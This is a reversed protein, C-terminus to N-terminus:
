KKNAVIEKLYSITDSISKAGIKEERGEITLTKEEVEKDGIVLLYPTREEKAARIKKGLSEKRDDLEVRLGAEKMEKLVEEAYPLHTDSIPLIMAQVPALWLPFHGGFHEIMVGMFRELSGSIARHIVVPREKEGKENTFSLEFREPLNFDCQITALQWERGIADKFMFDLKPGYFAAEDRGVVYNLDNAKAASELAAEAKEWVDDGGLYKSTDDGRVSLRVWYGDFMNMTTYFERIISVITSVEQEIQDVRCFLHGDDQTISRVRTLGALQGAKEYRYVTGPEFYRVPMDRYSFTNDAFIQMHHPCNMPKMFFEEDGGKVRFLEDGFKSAHGSTEYLDQKALHPTWVRQYGKSQHLDWLYNEIEQRITMGRPQMLPLGPGVLDSITFLKMEKGIKRHDRKKAEEMMWEYKELAEKNEFALGYIRTLMKNKEDGRWYAGAIRDLKFADPSIEKSLNESHGGRCLDTFEGSTYFTIKEGKEELEKILELKYSNNKFHEKAESATVERGEFSTWSPLIEKMKKEIKALDKESIPTSFEFDYYFGNEVAPGITPKADPYLEKVAAALLHALSHRMPELNM